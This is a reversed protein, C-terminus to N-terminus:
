SGERPSLLHGDTRVSEEPPLVRPFSGLDPDSGVERNAASWSLASLAVRVEASVFSDDRTSGPLTRRCVCRVNRERSLDCFLHIDHLTHGKAAFFYTDLGELSTVYALANVSTNTRYRTLYPHEEPHRSRQRRVRSM